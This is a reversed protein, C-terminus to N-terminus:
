YATDYVLIVLLPLVLMQIMNKYIINHINNIYQKILELSNDTSCDDVVIVNNVFDFQPQLVSNIARIVTSSENYVPIVIDLM